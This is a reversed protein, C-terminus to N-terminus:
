AKIKTIFELIVYLAGFFSGLLITGIMLSKGIQQFDVLQTYKKQMPAMSELKALIEINQDSVADAKNNLKDIKGNVYMQISKEVVEMIEAKFVVRNAIAAEENRTMSKEFEKGQRQLELLHREITSHKAEIRPQLKDVIKEIVSEPIEIKKNEESTM